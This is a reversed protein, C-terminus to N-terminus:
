AAEAARAGPDGGPLSVPDGDLGAAPKAASPLVAFSSVLASRVAAALMLSSPPRPMTRCGFRQRRTPLGTGYTRSQPPHFHLMETKFLQM